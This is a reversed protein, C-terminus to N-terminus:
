SVAHHRRVIHLSSDGSCSGVLVEPVLPLSVYMGGSVLKDINEWRFGHILKSGHKEKEPLYRM